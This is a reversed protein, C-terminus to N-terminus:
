NSLSARAIGVRFARCHLVVHSYSDITEGSRPTFTRSFSSKNTVEGFGRAGDPLSAGADWDIRSSTYLALWADPAGGDNLGTITLRLQGGAVESFTVSGAASTYGPWGSITGTRSKLMVPETVTLTAMGSVDDVTATITTSGADAGTALGSSSITAVSTTSSSWTITRGSIVQNDSTYATASFQRTAGEEISASSPSVSVSAVVMPPPPPETVTLSATGSQGGGTATITTSGANQATALGSSANITATTTNSSEWMFTVGAIQVDYSTYAVASFLQTEGEQISPSPPSVSVRSVVPRVTLSATDSKGSARATITVQSPTAGAKEGRALGTSSNITAISTNSSEWVFSVNQIAVNYSTYATANFDHTSGENITASPPSVLVRSIVPRVTLSATDSKGSARATITVQSPTAGAREGRALGTSSNITAISTNSSEWVFSVNQIAVNYSTYATANFDHTSGENITASPPSVAIRSIVPRVTLTATDSKGGARATITVQSPTAGAREGRALGTSSNITAISTNSSEWTFSVNSIAVDYSTYATADFDHTSGENITASPPSVAVRSIVPRVTLTATDSKGDANATITVQTPSTGARVGTAVGSSSITAVSENSSTWKFDVGNIVEGGSTRATATFQQTNGEDITANSPSVEIRDVVPPPETVTLTATGSRGGARARITTSGAKLGRALGSSSITAVSFNSSSWRFTLNQIAVNYSTYATARFRRTSGEEMTAISPRVSVRSVVPEVTLTATDTKGEASATITVDSPRSGAMVGIALGSSSITAVTDNSSTWTFDVDQIAVDYSTFATASFMRTAGEDITATKPSVEVRTIVPEVTLIATGSIGDATATLTIQTPSSGARVGTALGSSDITAVAMDSSMWSITVDSIVQGDTSMAVAEFQQTEGEEISAMPPSVMVSAVVPPPEAVTIMVPASTVGEVMATINAMGADVASVLGTQDVSAVDIDDSSWEFDVGGVMMGESTRAVATLQHTDGVELMLSSLNVTVSSVEPPLEEITVTAPMSTVNNASATIMATGAAVATVLGTDDVTAIGDDDSMWTFQVDPIAMGDATLATAEFQFTGGVEMTMASPSVMISAVVPPPEVVTIVVPASTVGEAMATINAMGADVASVLGTQDVSAVDIDDSSWEFDVGGVMMGESTRAVATLRHTDGVELMLSSQDVTVSSVEPPLEEITVTAPMSTVNNASATIMATGAAVATVLGTDDVTAIGDDDSMWTFQVDPIAMGDATLATAEFQFTGGVEMTMASPSVMISAVVPPPEAVTIRVPASTVGEAMATINAMGAGVATVLGTQDVSAVDIDDSSWEFDVGGVMMGESTRAVATLRHTDGVELMLSSLNVTVSSVEPPLEEITVTAPMSTVNNASATIMATGAALGTVLGTDDVTAIGDDDGMWTFHVDPIAMGDATLATAEFQFTGGVEMTMTSPSVMISAVVPPPEAVTIRVPASTVGEAMATINAMGADVASVLGTQDVSAVDIDDSSWEFDVGGVMMGESTRAVATLRHTDGVELMLSSLNVTVSSVEPPLEEITVTAPMSTVNNASATIMATGAALGTVLGTDDVTAIGDDDSMWTFQVDPIAMGDATLATAEFQFTGGVEMTMASPSVMISAVVPPPEAVTIVVPASTVGEAMATINAMGADVASVLGTQDVSAVDIDDSSWEFDVGGVMMGESTRAVATLQHTDGVELMLSSLNVTVSSVEPPLEEITVTAPMSTVNNASATIMATGAAVATVLGTDDVTAIGDDDSMWTFHVDPIAMGDATLVTAEFQFTGGVEMTMTSPSVMISTVVPPAETVTLMAMGSIGDAMATITVEGAAAGTALGTPDITAVAMDNSMWSITVDPIVMGDSSMAEAEFQQTGGEEITAMSPSVMISAVVPPPEAVTIVVPASTVGEAMATINAMGADVASVLGTQDVSAVDINDSSWEFDVGGVMMGESTRAVATLQHTDGVELMLSSLNVTVSSVEPPLEEITVTAPMSTVNNASATIMATGAAVATVLGTDDVTAIGDDDSMWTFHVDPIAMGDATLATAEFQFTGGVEMTMTSPSVMISTVVPPAETVTLMAMGSIGDAMATITVEGAAAGTALGTPDITAVAMDNSMWSITVDPIVMGDSSMAEAEFQQTGGEEITAMSPSVMISAVVPPPEAVTIIVPASTVGEAMATINAMGAGVATVLGTQDVSAVDINDSSWEFDVGGVMMGESTRAVATLQHTDGVELMLSPLDVTVSSVEPPLEEIIVTAPMSTVNNASATIMATGAAVATVLGTDDVTAIGDDDSMWTFQVDPITMGDATLATAEFQFTGGVEMTMTSPSVMISAVVPPPEVVTLRVPTSTVGGSVARIMATGVGVATAMGSDDITVVATNSSSWTVEAEKLTSGDNTRVTAAFLRIEGITLQQPSSPSVTVSEVQPAIVTIMVPSSTVGDAVARIIATGVGIATALGQANISVVATNSSTWSITVGSVSSGESTHATATFRQTGGVQLKASSPSVVVSAVSPPRIIVPNTPSDKGCASTLIITIGFGAILCLILGGLSKNDSCNLSVGRRSCNLM